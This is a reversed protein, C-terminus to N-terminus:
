KRNVLSYATMASVKLFAGIERYTMKRERLTRAQAVLEPNPGVGSGSPRGAGDRAGGLKKGKAVANRLGGKIREVTICREMEAVAGLVTFIMKGTPSDTDIQENMSVFAIGLDNFTELATCLHKVSRAFRDFRWVIVVDFKHLAADKMLRDLAPRRAKAGSVGEDIYREVLVLNRQQCFQDLDRTQMGTDQGHNMTSVRAYIAARKGTMVM